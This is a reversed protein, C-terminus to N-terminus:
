RELTPNLPSQQQFAVWRRAALRSARDATLRIAQLLDPATVSVLAEESNRFRMRLDCRFSDSERAIGDEEHWELNVKQVWTEYRALALALYRRAANDVDPDPCEGRIVLKM